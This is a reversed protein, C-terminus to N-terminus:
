GRSVPAKLDTEADGFHFTKGDGWVISLKDLSAERIWQERSWFKQALTQFWKKGKALLERRRTNYDGFDKSLAEELIEATDEFEHMQPKELLSEYLNGDILNLMENIFKRARHWQSENIYMNPNKLIWLKGLFLRPNKVDRDSPLVHHDYHYHTVIIATSKEVRYMIEEVAQSRIRLKEQLPLPYSPQMKAAGPDVVVLGRSTTISISSSKAGLSDFWIIEIGLKELTM